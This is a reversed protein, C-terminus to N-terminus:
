ARVDPTPLLYLLALGLMLVLFLPVSLLGALTAIPYVALGINYRRNRVALLEPTVGPRHLEPHRLLYRWLINFAVAMATSTLGYVVVAIRQDGSTGDRAYEALLATPWPLVSVPLLLLLNLVQFAHSTRGLLQVTAHHNLWIIWVILFSTLYALYRPWQEALAAGLHGHAGQPVKVDLILLTIVIALVGDSFAELRGISMGLGAPAGDRGSM